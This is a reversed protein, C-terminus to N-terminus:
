NMTMYLLLNKSTLEEWVQEHSNIEYEEANHTVQAVRIVVGNKRIELNNGCKVCFQNRKNSLALGQYRAGCRPCINEVKESETAKKSLMEKSDKRLNARYIGEAGSLGSLRNYKLEKVTSPVYGNFSNNNRHNSELAVGCYLCLQKGFSEAAWGQFHTGCKPCRGELYHM